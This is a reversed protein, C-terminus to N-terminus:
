NRKITCGLSRSSTVAIPEGATLSNIADRLYHNQVEAASRANDDIAGRYVLTMDSDFLYIHPTHLAGYADALKHDKDLAYHFNYNYDAARKIMDNMSEGQGRAPENPNLAIMGINKEKALAGIEVYRDEWRHVWPCTNSTFVVLLGNEGAVDALSIMSGTIDQMKVDTMLAKEGIPLEDAVGSNMTTFGIFLVAFAAVLTVLTKLKNM